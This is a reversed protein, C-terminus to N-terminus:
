KRFTPSLKPKAGFFSVAVQGASVTAAIGPAGAASAAVHDAGSAM